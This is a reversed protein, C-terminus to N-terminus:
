EIIKPVIFFSDVSKPANNLIEQSVTPSSNITDERLKTSADSMAFNDDVGDTNLDSLNDVFSVIESLQSIIEQRKDDSVKLFSLKELRSLLADDVQM